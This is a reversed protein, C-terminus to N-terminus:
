RTEPSEGDATWLARVLLVPVAILVIALLAWYTWAGIFGPRFLAARRFIAPVQSLVSVRRDRLFVLHFRTGLRAKRGQGYVFVYSADGGPNPSGMIAAVRAGRRETLCVDVSGGAPVHRSLRVVQVAPRRSPKAPGAPAIGSAVPRGGASRSVTLTLARGRPAGILALQIAKFGGEVHVNRECSHYGPAVLAAVHFTNAGNSFALDRKDASASLVLAVVALIVIGFVTGALAFRRM